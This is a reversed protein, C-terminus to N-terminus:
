FVLIFGILVLAILIVLDCMSRVCYLAPITECSDTLSLSNIVSDNIILFVANTFM